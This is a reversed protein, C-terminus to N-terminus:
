TSHRALMRRVFSEDDLAGDLKARFDAVSDLDAIMTRRLATREGAPGNVGHLVTVAGRLGLEGILQQERRGFDGAPYCFTHADVETLETLRRASQEIESRAEADSLATLRSHTVGHPQVEVLGTRTLKGVDDWTLFPPPDAYWTCRATGDLIGTLVFVTAPIGLDELVPLAHFLNDLYGDDLTVCVYRGEVDEDLLDYASRLPVPELGKVSLLAEMQARFRAPSVSLRDRGPAVRHYGLIRVGRWLPKKRRVNHALIRAKGHGYGALDIVRPKFVLESSEAETPRARCLEELISEHRDVLHELSFCEEVRRRGAAGMARARHLDAGVRGLAAALGAVNEPAVLEGSRGHEVIEPIGGVATAVVPLGLAFAELVALPAGGEQRSALVAVDAAAIVPAPNVIDGAFLVREGLGLVEVRARYADAAPGDGVLVLVATPLEAAVAAFAEIVLDVGKPPDHRAVCVFCPGGAPLTPGTERALRDFEAVDIGSRVVEIELSPQFSLFQRALADSVATIRASLVRALWADRKERGALVGHLTVLRPTRPAVLAAVAGATLSHAHVVDPREKAVLRRLGIAWRPTTRADLIERAVREVRIERERLWREQASPEGGYAVVIEHGREMLGRAVAILYRQLGGSELRPSVVIVKM